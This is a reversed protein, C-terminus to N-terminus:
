YPDLSTFLEIDLSINIFINGSCGAPRFMCRYVCYLFTSKITIHTYRTIALLICAIFDIYEQKAEVKIKRVAVYIHDSNKKSASTIPREINSEAFGSIFRFM